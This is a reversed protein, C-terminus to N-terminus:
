DAKEYNRRSYECGCYNQRYLHMEKSLRVSEEFGGKKKFDIREFGPFGSGVEFLTESKKFRSVSLTSSFSGMGLEKMKGYAKRLSHRFCETCRLGGERESELGRVDERWSLHDYRDKVVDVGYYEAVRLLNEYRRDFEEMSDINDNSYFLLPEYGEDLLRRVSSTACPGCCTHLLIGKGM